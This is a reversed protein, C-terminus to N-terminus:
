EGGYVQVGAVFTKLVKIEKLEKSDVKFPDRDLVVFDAFKNKEITGLVEEDGTTYAINKTFLCIAEYVSLREDKGWGESPYGDLGQRTIAAYIGKIPDYSEVPCDSGGAMLLGADMMTKWIYANKMRDMGLRSEIWYLDTCLFIPQIDLIIPLKKMRELQDKNVVQAHIIRFPLRKIKKNERASKEKSNELVYDIADLTIELARDGIAHIAPQLGMDYAILLDKNLNEKNVLIGYNNEDDSYPELLAASKAGLSGDTFLKYSGYKVKAYPDEGSAAMYDTEFLYDLSVIVRLPLKGEKDLDRYIAIDEEYNWIKAAYTNISTIGKSVMDELVEVMIRKKEDHDALPDPVLNDFIIISKEHFIGTMKGADDLEILGGAREIMDQDVGAMQIALSNAVMTHLCCRRIVVPYETSIKDLDWRTPISNESFKTQDFGAGRIWKGKPTASAKEKMAAILQEISKVDDLKVSTQKQCYAYMHLHSDGMGPIVAKGALNILDSANYNESAQNSGAFVIKGKDIGIAEVTEGEKRLTYIKGNTLLTDIRIRDM